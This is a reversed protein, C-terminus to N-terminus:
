RNVRVGGKKLERKMRARLVRRLNIDKWAMARKVGRVGLVRDSAAHKAESRFTWIAGFISTRRGADGSGGWRKIWAAFRGQLRADGGGMVSGKAMGVRKQVEDVYMRFVSPIIKKKAGRRARGNRTRRQQHWVRAATM